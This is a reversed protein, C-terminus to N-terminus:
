DLFQDTQIYNGTIQETSPNSAAGSHRLWTTHSHFTRHCLQM